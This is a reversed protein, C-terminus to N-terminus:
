YGLPFTEQRPKPRRHTWEGAFLPDPFIAPGVEWFGGGMAHAHARARFFERARAAANYSPLEQGFRNKWALHATNGNGYFEVAEIIAPGQHFEMPDRTRAYHAARALSQNM